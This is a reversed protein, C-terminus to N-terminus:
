CLLYINGVALLLSCIPTKEEHNMVYLARKEDWTEKRRLWTAHECLRISNAKRHVLMALSKSVGLQKKLATTCQGSCHKRM